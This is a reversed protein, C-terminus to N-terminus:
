FLFRRPHRRLNRFLARLLAKRDQSKLGKALIALRLSLAFSVSINLAGICIVGFLAWALSQLYIVTPLDSLSSGMALGISAASLTVHRVELPLGLFAFVMPVFGLLLGLAICNVIGPLHQATFQSLWQTSKKGLFRKMRHSQAMAEPLARSNMWNSTWGGALSGLFLMVGTLAAFPLTLSEFPHLSGLTYAIQTADLFPRGLALSVLREVLVACPIALLINGLTAVFQGRSIAEVMQVEEELGNSVELSSSLAAATAAPQKSALTFHMFQMAMFSLAYNAAHGLGMLGPALPMFSLLYKFLATFATLAGGGSAAKAMDQKEAENRILYHEGSRGNHEVMKRALRNLSQKALASAKREQHIQDLLQALFGLGDTQHHALQYLSEMRKLSASMLDLRYVLDSVVGGVEMSLSCASLRSQCAQLIELFDTRDEQSAAILQAFPSDLEKEKPGLALFDRQLGRAATRIALLRYAEGYCGPHIALLDQWFISLPEPLTLLWQADEPGPDQQEVWAHLDEPDELQPLFTRTLRQSIERLFNPHVPLGGEALLRVLSRHQFLTQIRAKLDAGRPTEALHRTLRQLAETREPGAPHDLLWQVLPQLAQINDPLPAELLLELEQQVDPQQFPWKM